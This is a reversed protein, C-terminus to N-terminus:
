EGGGISQFLHVEDGDRLVREPNREMQGNVSCGVPTQIGLHARLDAVSSGEPLEVTLRGRTEKALRERLMGYLVVKVQM